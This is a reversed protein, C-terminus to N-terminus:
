VSVVEKDVVAEESFCGTGYVPFDDLDTGRQQYKWNRLQKELGYIDLIEWVKVAVERFDYGEVGAWIVCGRVRLVGDDERFPFAVGLVRTEYGHDGEEFTSKKRREYGIDHIQSYRNCGAAIAIYL